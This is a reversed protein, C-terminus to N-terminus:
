GKGRLVSGDRGRGGEGMVMAKTAEAERAPSCAVAQAPAATQGAAPAAPAAVAMVTSGYADEEGTRTGTLGGCGGGSGTETSVGFDRATGNIFFGSPRM